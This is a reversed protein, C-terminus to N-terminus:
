RFQALGPIALRMTGPPVEFAGPPVPGAAVTLAEFSGRRGDANGAGRLAVGDGTLCVTGTGRKAAVDYETCPLGAVVAQGRRTLRADRLTIPSVDGPRIPLTIVGHLATDLLQARPAALDVQLVQSRGPAEVRLRQRAADWRLTVTPPLGGPVAERIGGEIRYTVTVDSTPVTPVAPQAAATGALLAGFGVLAARM